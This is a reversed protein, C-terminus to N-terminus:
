VIANAITKNSASILMPKNNANTKVTMLETTPSFAVSVTIIEEITQIIIDSKKSSITNLVSGVNVLMAIPSLNIAM